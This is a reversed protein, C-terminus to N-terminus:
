DWGAIVERIAAAVADPELLAAFHGADLRRLPWGLATAAAAPVDYAASTRVYGCAADPWGAPVPIPETFYDLGRPQLAAILAVPDPALDAIAEVTWAPFRQGAELDARLEAAFEADEEAMMELRSRGDAPLGADLFVYGGAGGIAEGLAPLLPGAGSHGVLISGRPIAQAAAEVFRRWYPPRDDGAVDVVLGGLLGPLRGWSASARVLPSHVLAITM